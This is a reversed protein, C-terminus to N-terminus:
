NHIEISHFTKHKEVLMSKTTTETKSHLLLTTIVRLTLLAQMLEEEIIKLLREM